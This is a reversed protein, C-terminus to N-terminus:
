DGGKETQGSNHEIEIEQLNDEWSSSLKVSINTGFMSNVNEIYKVRQELMNDVLPLLADNNLQSEDANISERKMNYNANLGIENYWSAKLYQQLEILNTIINTNASNAYPQAKIGDLFSNDAIVGLNGDEIDKLYKIASQYTRDDPANILSNIRTNVMAIKLSLENEMLETAYRKFLPLLGIYLSDNPMVVCEKGIELTKFLNLYPNSVVYKTPMYYVNPEGGLGGTFVYLEDNVKYWCVNGNTQLMLELNRKDITEPLNLWDFMSQTRILMYSMHENVNRCKDKFDYINSCNLLGCVYKDYYKTNM